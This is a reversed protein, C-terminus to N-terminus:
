PHGAEEAKPPKPVLMWHTANRVKLRQGFQDYLRSRWKQHHRSWYCDPVRRKGNDLLDIRKLATRPATDIPQWPTAETSM